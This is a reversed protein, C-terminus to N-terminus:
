LLRNKSFDFRSPSNQAQCLTPYKKTDETADISGFFVLDRSKATRNSKKEAIQSERKVTGQEEAKQGREKREAIVKRWPSNTSATASHRRRL